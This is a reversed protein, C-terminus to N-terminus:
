SHALSLVSFEPTAAIEDGSKLETPTVFRLRLHSVPEAPSDLEVELPQPNTVASTSGGLIREIPEGNLGLQWAATLEVRSRRPGLGERALQAFTLVLHAIAPTKTDFLNLDFYFEHGQSITQGDLHWARFVFPRPLDSLGSPAGPPALPEFM